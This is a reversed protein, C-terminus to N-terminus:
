AAPASPFVTEKPPLAFRHDIEQLAKTNDCSGIDCNNELTTHFTAWSKQLKKTNEGAKEREPGVLARDPHLKKTMILYKSRCQAFTVNEGPKLEMGLEVMERIFNDKAELMKEKPAFAKPTIKSVPLNEDVKEASRFVNEPPNKMFSFFEDLNLTVRGLVREKVNDSEFIELKIVSLDPRPGFDTETLGMENLIEKVFEQIREFLSVKKFINFDKDRVDDMMSPDLRIYTKWKHGQSEVEKVPPPQVPTSTESQLEGTHVIMQNNRVHM